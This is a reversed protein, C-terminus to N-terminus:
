LYLPPPATSPPPKEKLLRALEDAHHVPLLHQRALAHNPAGHLLHVWKSVNSRSMQFIQGHMAQIPKHKM